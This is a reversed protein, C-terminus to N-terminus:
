AEIRIYNVAIGPRELFGLKRALAGSAENHFCGWEPALGRGLCAEITALAALTGLGKGRHDRHTQAGLEARGDGVFASQCTSVVQDGYLVCHGLGAALFREIGGWHEDMGGVHQALVRDVRRVCYDAPIRQRWGDHDALRAVDYDYTTRHLRRVGQDALLEDLLMRWEENFAYLMLHGAGEGPRLAPIVQGVIFDRLHSAFLGDSADGVVFLDSPERGMILCASGPAEPDDVLVRGLLNGEIVGYVPARLEDIPDCLPRVLGYRDKALEHM